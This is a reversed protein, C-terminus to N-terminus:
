MSPPPWPSLGSAAADLGAVVQLVVVVSGGGASLPVSVSSAPRGVLVGGIDVKMEPRSVLVGGLGVEM